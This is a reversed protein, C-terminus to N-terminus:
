CKIFKQEKHMPFVAALTPAREIVVFRICRGIDDGTSPEAHCGIPQLAAVKEEFMRDYIIVNATTFARSELASLGAAIAQEILWLEAPAVAAPNPQSGPTM